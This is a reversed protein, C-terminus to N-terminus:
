LVHVHGGPNVPALQSKSMMVVEILLQVKKRVSNCLRKICPNQPDPIETGEVVVQNGM